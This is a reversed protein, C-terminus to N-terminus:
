TNNKEKLNKITMMFIIHNIMDDHYLCIAVNTLIGIFISTMWYVMLQGSMFYLTFTGLVMTLIAASTSYVSFSSLNFENTEIIRKIIMRVIFKNNTFSIFYGFLFGLFTIM